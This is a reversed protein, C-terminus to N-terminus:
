RPASPCLSMGRPCCWCLASISCPINVARDPRRCDCLERQWAMALRSCYFLGRSITRCPATAPPRGPRPPARRASRAGPRHRGPGRCFGPRARAGRSGKAPGGARGHPAYAHMGRAVACWAMRTDLADLLARLRHLAALPCRAARRVCCLSALLAPRVPAADGAKALSVDRKSCRRQCQWVCCAACPYV